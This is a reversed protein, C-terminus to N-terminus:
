ELTHVVASGKPSNRATKMTEYKNTQRGIGDNNVVMPRIMKMVPINKEKLSFSSKIRSSFHSPLTVDFSAVTMEESRKGGEEAATERRKVPVNVRWNSTSSVWSDDALASEANQTRFM